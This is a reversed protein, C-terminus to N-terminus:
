SNNAERSRVLSVAADISDVIPINKEKAVNEAWQRHSLVLSFGTDTAQAGGDYLNGGSKEIIRKKHEEWPLIVIVAPLYKDDPTFSTTLTWLGHEVMATNVEGCRLEVEHIVEDGMDWWPLPRLPVVGPQCPHAGTERYILDADVLDTKGENDPIQSRCTTSKGGGSGVFIIAGHHHRIHKQTYEDVVKEIRATDMPELTLNGSESFSTKPTNQQMKAEDINMLSSTIKVYFLM